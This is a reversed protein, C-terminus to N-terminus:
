EDKEEESLKNYTYPQVLNGSKDKLLWINKEKMKAEIMLDIEVESNPDNIFPLPGYTFMSHANIKITPDKKEDRLSESWHM